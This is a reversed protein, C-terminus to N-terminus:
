KKIVRGLLVYGTNSYSWREGPEFDLRTGAYEALLADEEIPRALRRDVFDLPYYDAYGSVHTMLDYLTIRDAYTLGPYYKGVKDDVSLRGDEALLLIAACAFQKTVSGIAFMTDPEVPAQDEISRHGYGKALVLKGDRVIALSIGPFGQQRVQAKVYADITAVDFTRPPEASTRAPDRLFKV